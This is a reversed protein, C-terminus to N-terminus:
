LLKISKVRISDQLDLCMTIILTQLLDVMKITLTPNITLIMTTTIILDQNTDMPNILSPNPITTQLAKKLVRSYILQSSPVLSFSLVTIWLNRTSPPNFHCHYNHDLQITTDKILHLRKYILLIDLNTAM